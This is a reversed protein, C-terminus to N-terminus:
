GNTVERWVQDSLEDFIPRMSPNIYDRPPVYGGTGTGHGYQILIAVSVGGEVDTNYWYVGHRGKKHEVVYGWSHAALGTDRPTARALADVGRRGGAPLGSFMKDTKLFGLFSETKKFSGSSSASIM